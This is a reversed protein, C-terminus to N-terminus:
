ISPIVPKAWIMCNIAHFDTPDSSCNTLMIDELSFNNKRLLAPYNHTWSLPKWRPTSKEPFVAVDLRPLSVPESLFMNLRKVKSARAFFDDVYEPQVFHFLGETYFFIKTSRYREILEDARELPLLLYELNPAKFNAKAYNVAGQFADTGICSASPFQRAFWHIERGSASGIQIITCKEKDIYQEICSKVKLYIPQGEAITRNPDQRFPMALDFIGTDYSSAWDASGPGILLAKKQERVAPDKEGWYEIDLWHKMVDKYLLNDIHNRIKGQYRTSVLYLKYKEFLPMKAIGYAIIGSLKTGQFFKNIVLGIITKIKKM